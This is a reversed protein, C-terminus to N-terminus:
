GPPSTTPTPTATTGGGTGGGSLRAEVARYDKIAKDLEATAAGIQNFDGTKYAASLKDLAADIKAIAAALEGNQVPPQNGPPQNTPPQNTPPQQGPPTAGGKRVLEAIAGQLTEAFGVTNGYSVLV